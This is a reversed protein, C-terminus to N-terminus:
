KSRWTNFSVVGDTIIMYEGSTDLTDIFYYRGGTSGGKTDIQHQQTHGVVQRCVKKLGKEHKNNVAM